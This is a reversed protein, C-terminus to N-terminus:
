QGSDLEAGAIAAVTSWRRRKRESFIRDRWGVMLIFKM